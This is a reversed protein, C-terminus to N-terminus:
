RAGVLSSSGRLLVSAYSKRNHATKCVKAGGGRTTAGRRADVSLTFHLTSPGANRRARPQGGWHKRTNSSPVTPLNPLPVCDWLRQSRAWRAWLILAFRTYMSEYLIDGGPAVFAGLEKRLPIVVVVVSSSLRCLRDVVIHPRVVFTSFRNRCCGPLKTYYWEGSRYTIHACIYYPARKYATNYPRVKPRIAPRKALNARSRTYRHHHHIIHLACPRIVACANVCLSVGTSGTFRNCMECM